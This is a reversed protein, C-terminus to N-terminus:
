AFTRAIRRVAMRSPDRDTPYDSAATRLEVVSLHSGRRVIGLGTAWGREASQPGYDTRYGEGDRPRGRRRRGSRRAPSTWGSRATRRGPASCRTRGGRRSPTRSSRWWRRPGAGDPGSAFSRRVASIAGITELDTKQCAGVVADERGPDSIRWATERGAVADPRGDAPPEGSGDPAPAPGHGAAAQHKQRKQGPSTPTAPAATPEERKGPQADHTDQAHPSAAVEPRAQGATGDAGCASLTLVFAALTLLPLRPVRSM